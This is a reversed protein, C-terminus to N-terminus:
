ADGIMRVYAGGVRRVPSMMVSVLRAYANRMTQQADTDSEKQTQIENELLVQLDVNVEERTTLDQEIEVLIEVM